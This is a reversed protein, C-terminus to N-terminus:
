SELGTYALSALRQMEPASMRGTMVTGIVDDQWICVRQRDRKFQDFRVAGSSHRVYLAFARPDAGRRYLLEVAKGGPVGDYVQLRSLTYGMKGLDPARVPMALATTMVADAAHASAAGGIALTQRPATADSQAALAETVITDERVAFTQRYALTAALLLVLAAAIAALPKLYSAFRSRRPRHILALWEAPLPRDLLADYIGALRAKDARFSAVRESLRADSRVAEEIAASRGEDLQDDIFAHLDEERIEVRGTM